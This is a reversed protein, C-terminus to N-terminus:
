ENWGIRDLKAAEVVTNFVARHYISHEYGHEDLWKEFEVVAEPSSHIRLPDGDDPFGKAYYRYRTNFRKREHYDVIEQVGLELAKETPTM